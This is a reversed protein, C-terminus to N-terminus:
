QSPPVIPPTIKIIKSPPTCIQNNCLGTTQTCARKPCIKQGPPCIPCNSIKCSSGDTSGFCPDPTPSPAPVVGVYVAISGTAVGSASIAKVVIDGRGRNKNSPIFTALKDNANVHLSGISNTTSMSWQYSVGKWIPHNDTDYVLASLNTEKGGLKEVIKEPMIHVSAPIQVAPAAQSFWNTQSLIAYLSVPIVAFLVGVISLQLQHSKPLSKWSQRLSQPSSMEQSEMKKVM